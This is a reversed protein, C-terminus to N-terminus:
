ACRRARHNQRHQALSGTLWRDGCGVHRVLGTSEARWRVADDRGQAHCRHLRDHGRRVVRRTVRTGVPFGNSCDPGHDVVEGIFEHGMVTDRDSDWVFRDASNPHDMYYVDSACIAASLPRILLEGPGAVPDATERVHLKGYRLVVARM